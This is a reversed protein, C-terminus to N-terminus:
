VPGLAGALDVTTGPPTAAAVAELAKLPVGAHVALADGAVLVLPLGALWAALGSHV